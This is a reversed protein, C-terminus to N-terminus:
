AAKKRDIVREKRTSLNLIEITTKPNRKPVTVNAGAAKLEAWTWHNGARKIRVTM